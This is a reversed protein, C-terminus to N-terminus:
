GARSIRAPSPGNEGGCWLSEVHRAYDRLRARESDLVAHYRIDETGASRIFFETSNEKDLMELGQVSELPIVSTKWNNPQAALDILADGAHAGFELVPSPSSETLQFFYERVSSEWRAITRIFEDVFEDPLRGMATKRITKYLLEM